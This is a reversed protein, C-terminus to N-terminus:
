LVVEGRDEWPEVIFVGGNEAGEEGLPGGELGHRERPAGGKLAEETGMVPAVDLDDVVADAGDRAGGWQGGICAEDGGLGEEHLCEDALQTYGQVGDLGEGVGDGLAGLAMGVEGSQSGQWASPGDKSGAEEDGAAFLAVTVGRGVLTWLIRAKRRHGFAAAVLGPDM